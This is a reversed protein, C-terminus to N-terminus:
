RQAMAAVMSFVIMPLGWVTARAQAAPGWFDAALAAAAAQVAQLPDGAALATSVAQNALVGDAVAVGLILTWVIMLAVMLFFVFRQM